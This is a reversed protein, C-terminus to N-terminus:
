ESYTDTKFDYSSGGKLKNLFKQQNTTLEKQQKKVIQIEFGSEEILANIKEFQKKLTAKKRGRNTRDVEPFVSAFIYPPSKDIIELINDQM